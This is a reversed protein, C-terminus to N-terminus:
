FTLASINLSLENFEMSNMPKVKPGLSCMKPSAGGVNESSASISFLFRQTLFRLISFSEFMKTPISFFFM